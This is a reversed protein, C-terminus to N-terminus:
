GHRITSEGGLNEQPPNVALVCNSRQGCQYLVLFTKALTKVIEPANGTTMESPNPVLPGLISVLFRVLWMRCRHSVQLRVM